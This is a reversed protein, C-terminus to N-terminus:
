QHLVSANTLKSISSLDILVLRSYSSRVKSVNPWVDVGAKETSLATAISGLDRHHKELRKTHHGDV